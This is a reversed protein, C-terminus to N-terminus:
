KHLTHKQPSSNRASWMGRWTKGKAEEATSADGRWVITAKDEACTTNLLSRMASKSPFCIFQHRNELSFYPGSHKEKWQKQSIWSACGFQYPISHFGTANRTQFRIAFMISQRFAKGDTRPIKGKSGWGIIVTDLSQGFGTAFFHPKMNPETKLDPLTQQIGPCRLFSLSSAFPGVSTTM